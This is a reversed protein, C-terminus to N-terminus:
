LKVLCFFKGTAKRLPIGTGDNNGNGTARRNSVIMVAGPLWGTERKM